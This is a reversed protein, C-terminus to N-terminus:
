SLVNLVLTCQVLVETNLTQPLTEGCPKMGEGDFIPGICGHKGGGIFM